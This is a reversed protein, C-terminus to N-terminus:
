QQALKPFHMKWARRRWNGKARWNLAASLTRLLDHLRLDPSIAILFRLAWTFLIFFFFFSSVFYSVFFSLARFADCRMAISAPSASLPKSCPCPLAPKIRNKADVSVMRYFLLRNETSFNLQVIIINGAVVVVIVIAFVVVNVVFHRVKLFISCFFYYDYIFNGSNASPIAYFQHRVSLEINMLYNFYM